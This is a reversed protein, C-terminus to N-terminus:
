NPSGLGQGLCFEIASEFDTFDFWDILLISPVSEQDSCPPVGPM